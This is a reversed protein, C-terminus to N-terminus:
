VSGMTAPPREGAFMFSLVLASLAGIVVTTGIDHLLPTRCMMLLSFTLVTMANCTILTRLTRAREEKDLQRRAFFLAYDLGVGVVFQLSVIHLLSLRTGVASLISVTVVIAAAIAGVVSLTRPVDRLGITIALLAALAGFGFWRWARATYAAVVNNAETSVDVFTAGADRMAAAFREPEALDSPAIVGYWDHDRQ